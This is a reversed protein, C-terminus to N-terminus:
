FPPGIKLINFKPIYNLSVSHSCPLRAGKKFLFMVKLEVVRFLLKNHNFIVILLLGIKMWVIQM